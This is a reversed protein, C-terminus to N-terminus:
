ALANRNSGFIDNLSPLSRLKAIENQLSTLKKNTNEDQKKLANLDALMADMAPLADEKQRNAEQLKAEFAGLASTLGQVFTGMEDASGALRNFITLFYAVLQDNSYNPYRVRHDVESWGEEFITRVQIEALVKRQLPQTSCVYHVSRYGAPHS